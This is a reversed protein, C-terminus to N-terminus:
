KKAKKESKIIEGYVDMISQIAEDLKKEKESLVDSVLWLAGGENDCQREACITIISQCNSLTSALHELTNIQEWFKTKLQENM